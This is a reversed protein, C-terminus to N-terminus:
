ACRDLRRPRRCRRLNEVAYQRDAGSEQAPPVVAHTFGLKAAEKLRTAVHAVPRIAGSLGIEGFFVCHPPLSQGTLSSVLAAAAALDAAPEAIRLGGAVNLYVDHQGLRLGARAELVAIIM